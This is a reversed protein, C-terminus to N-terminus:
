ELQITQPDAGRVVMLDLTNVSKALDEPVEMLLVADTRGGPPIQADMGSFDNAIMTVMTFGQVDGNILLKFQPNMGATNFRVTDGTLNHITFNAVLLKDGPAASVAGQTQSDPYTNRVSYGTYEVTAGNAIRQLSSAEISVRDAPIDASVPQEVTDAPQEPGAPTESPADQAAPDAESVATGAEAPTGDPAEQVPPAAETEPDAPTGDSAEQAPPAAESAAANAEASAEAGSEPTGAPEAPSPAAEEPQIGVLHEPTYAADLYTMRDPTGKAYRLLLGAAYNVIMNYESDSMEPFNGGCGTVALSLVTLMAAFSIRKKMKM